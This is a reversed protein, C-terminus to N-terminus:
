AATWTCAVVSLDSDRSILILPKSLAIAQDKLQHSVVVTETSKVTLMVSVDEERARQKHQLGPM